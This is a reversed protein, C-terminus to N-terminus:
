NRNQSNPTLWFLGEQYYNKKKKDDKHKLIYQYHFFFNRKKDRIPTLLNLRLALESVLTKIVFIREARTSNEKPAFIWNSEWTRTRDWYSMLYRSELGCNWQSGFSCIWVMCKKIVFYYIELSGTTSLWYALSILVKDDVLHQYIFIVQWM